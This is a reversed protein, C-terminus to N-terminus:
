IFHRARESLCTQQGFSRTERETIKLLSSLPLILSQMGAKWHIDLTESRYRFFMDILMFSSFESPSVKNWLILQKLSLPTNGSIM